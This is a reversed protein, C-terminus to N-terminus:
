ERIVKANKFLPHNASEGGGLVVVVEGPKVKGGHAGLRRSAEKRDKWPVMDNLVKDVGKSYDKMSKVGKKDMPTRALPFLMMLVRYNETKEEQISKWTDEL